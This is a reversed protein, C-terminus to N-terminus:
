HVHVQTAGLASCTNRCSLDLCDLSLNAVVNYDGAKSFRVLLSGAIGPFQDNRNNNAMETYSKGDWLITGHFNDFGQGRCIPAADYRFTFEKDVMVDYPGSPFSINRGGCACGPHQVVPQPTFEIVIPRATVELAAGSSRSVTATPSPGGTPQEQKTPTSPRSSVPTGIRNSGSSTQVEVARKMTVSWGKAPLDVIRDIPEYGVKTISVRVSREDTTLGHLPLDFHGNDDSLTTDSHRAVVIEAQGVPLLTTAERLQGTIEGNNAWPKLFIALLGILAALIVAAAGILAVKIEKGVPVDAGGEEKVALCDNHRMKARTTATLVPSILLGSQEADICTSM